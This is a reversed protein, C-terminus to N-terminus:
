PRKPKQFTFLVDMIINLFPKNIENLMERMGTPLSYLQHVILCRVSYLNYYYNSSVDRGSAHLLKKCATDLDTKHSTETHPAYKEFLEKVRTKENSINSLSEKHDSLKKPDAAIANILAHFKDEFIVEILLEIVQYTLHFQMVEDTAFPLQKKFWDNITSIGSLERSLPKITIKTKREGTSLDALANGKESFSYGYKYLGVLYDDINFSDILSTNGSDLVLLNTESNYYDDLHFEGPEAQEDIQEIEQLLLETAVYAYKLFYPNQAHDHELSLLAQFPFVWGIRQKGVYVQFISNESCSPSSNSLLHLSYQKPDYENDLQLMPSYLMTSGDNARLEYINKDPDYSKTTFYCNSDIYKIRM